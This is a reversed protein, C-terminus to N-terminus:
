LSKASRYNEIAKTIFVRQSPILNDPLNDSDYFNGVKPEEEVEAWFIQSSEKGRNNQNLMNAVFVPDSTKTGGLEGKIRETADNFASDDARIISGPTHLMNPWFPDDADRPLLLVQVQAGVVRLPVIEINPLVVLRAVQLFVDFPLLGVNLDSLM